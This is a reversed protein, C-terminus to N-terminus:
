PKRGLVLLYEMEFGEGDPTRAAEFVGALEQRVSDWRGDAELTTRAGIMPGFKEGLYDVYGEGTLDRVTVTRPALRLELGAPAFLERVHEETGWLPPPPPSDPPPPLHSGMVAFMGGAAGSPTWNAMAVLGGSRCVRALEAATRRQDPAFMAGFTSLVRDFAADEFPLDEADAEVWELEVGAEAAHRRGAEFLEPTLDSAVVRAGALAAPIAANGAGAAVDLVDMGPGIEAAAVVERGAEAIKEAVAPYDGTAWMERQQRKLDEVEASM